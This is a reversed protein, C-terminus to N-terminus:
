AREISQIRVTNLRISLSLTILARPAQSTTSITCYSPGVFPPACRGHLETTRRALSGERREVSATDGMSTSAFAAVRSDTTIAGVYAICLYM